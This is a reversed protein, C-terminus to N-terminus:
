VTTIGVGDEVRARVVFYRLFVPVAVYNHDKNAIGCAGGYLYM